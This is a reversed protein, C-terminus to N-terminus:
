NNYNAKWNGLLLNGKLTIKLFYILPFLRSTADPRQEKGTCVWMWSFLLSPHDLGTDALPLWCSGGQASLFVSPCPWGQPVLPCPQSTPGVGAGLVGSAAKCARTFSASFWGKWLPQSLQFCCHRPTLLWWHLAPLSRGHANGPAVLLTRSTSSSQSHPGPAGEWCCQGDEGKWGWREGNGFPLFFSFQGKLGEM